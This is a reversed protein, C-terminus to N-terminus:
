MIRSKDECKIIFNRELEDGNRLKPILENEINDYPELHEAWKRILIGGINGIAGQWM